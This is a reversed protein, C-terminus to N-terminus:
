SLERVYARLNDLTIEGMKRSRVVGEADLIFTTPLGIVGYQGRVSLDTDLAVPIGEVGLESLFASVTEASEGGNVALVVAGNPPQERM